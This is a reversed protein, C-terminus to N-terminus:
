IQRWNPPPPLGREEVTAQLEMQLVTPSFLMQRVSCVRGCSVTRHRCRGATSRPPLLAQRAAPHDHGAQPARGMCHGPRPTGPAAGRRGQSSPLWGAWPIGDHQLVPQLQWMSCPRTHSPKGDARKKRSEVWSCHLSSFTLCRSSFSGRPDWHPMM